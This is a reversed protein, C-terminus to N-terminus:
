KADGVNQQIYNSLDLLHTSYKLATKRHAISIVTIDLNILADLVFKELNNDFGSTAEDLILIKPNRVLARAIEVLQRQGGSLNTGRDKVYFSQLDTNINLRELLNTTDIAKEVSQQSVSSDNLTLNEFLSGSFM